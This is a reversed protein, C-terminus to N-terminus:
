ELPLVFGPDALATLRRMAARALRMSETKRRPGPLPHTMAPRVIEGDYADAVILGCREPQFVDRELM